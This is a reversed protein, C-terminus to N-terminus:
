PVRDDPWGERCLAAEDYERRFIVGSWAVLEIGCVTRATELTGPHRRALARLAGDPEVPPHGRLSPGHDPPDVTM